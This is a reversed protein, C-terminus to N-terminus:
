CDLPGRARRRRALLLGGGLLAFGALPFLLAVPAEPASASLVTYCSVASAETNDPRVWSAGPRLERETGQDDRGWALGRSCIADGGTGDAPVVYTFTSTGTTPGPGEVQSLSRALRPGFWVCDALKSPASWLFESPKWTLTM